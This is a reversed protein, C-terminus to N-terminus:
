FLILMLNKTFALYYGDGNFYETCEKITRIGNEDNIKLVHLIYEAESKRFELKILM